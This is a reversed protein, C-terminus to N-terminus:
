PLSTIIISAVRFRLICSSASSLLVVRVQLSSRRTKASPKDNKKAIVPHVFYFIFARDEDM